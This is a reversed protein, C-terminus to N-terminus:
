PYMLPFLLIVWSMGLGLHYPKGITWRAVFSNWWDRLLLHWYCSVVYDPACAPGGKKRKAFNASFGRWTEEDWYGAHCVPGVRQCIFEFTARSVRFNEKWWFDLVRNNLLQQFWNQKQTLLEGRTNIQLTVSIDLRFPFGLQDWGLGIADLNFAALSHIPRAQPNM